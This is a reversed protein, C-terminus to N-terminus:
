QIVEVDDAELLSRDIDIELSELINKNIVLRYRSPFQLEDMGQNNLLKIALTSIDQGISDKDTTVSAIAGTIALSRSYGIFPMRNKFGTLLLQAITTRNYVNKDPIILISSVKPIITKLNIGINRAGTELVPFTSISIGNNKAAMEYEPLRWSSSQSYLIGVPKDTGLLQKVANLIKEAPQDLVLYYHNPSNDEMTAQLPIMGHITAPPRSLSRTDLKNKAKTGLTIILDYEGPQLSLGLEDALGTHISLTKEHNCQQNCLAPLRQSLYESIYTYIGSDASKIILIDTRQESNFSNSALVPLSCFALIVAKCIAVSFLKTLQEHNM